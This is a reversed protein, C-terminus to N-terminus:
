FLSSFVPHYVQILTELIHAVGRSEETKCLIENERIVALVEATSASAVSVEKDCPLM